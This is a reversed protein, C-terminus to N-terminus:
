PRVPLSEGRLDIVASRDDIFDRESGVLGGLYDPVDLLVPLTEGGLYQRAEGIPRFKLGYFRNMATLLPREVIAIWYREPRTHSMAAFARVLHVFVAASVSSGADICLSSVELCQEQSPVCADPDLAFHEFVPLGRPGPLILRAVGVVAGEHRASLYISGAVHADEVLGTDLDLWNSHGDVFGREVYVRAHLRRADAIAPHDAAGVTIDIETAMARRLSMM